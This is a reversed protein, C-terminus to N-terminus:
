VRKQHPRHTANQGEKKATKQEYYNWFKKIDAESLPRRFIYSYDDSFYTQSPIEAGIHIVAARVVWELRQGQYRVLNLAKGRPLNALYDGVQIAFAKFEASNLWLALNENPDFWEEPYPRAPYM